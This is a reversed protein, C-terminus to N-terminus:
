VLLYLTDQQMLIIHLDMWLLKPLLKIKRTHIFIKEKILHGGNTALQITKLQLLIKDMRTRDQVMLQQVMTM